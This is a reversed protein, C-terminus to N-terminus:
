YDYSDEDEEGPEPGSEEQDEPEDPVPTVPETSPKDVQQVAICGGFPGNPAENQCRVICVTNIGGYSGSCKLNSPLKVVMPHVKKYGPGLFGGDGPVNTTITLNTSEWTTAMATYDIKCVFPGAGDANVQLFKINLVGGARVQPIRNQKAFQSIIVKHNLSSIGDKGCCKMKKGKADKLYWNPVGAARIATRGCGDPNPTRCPKCNPNYGSKKCKCGPKFTSACNAGKCICEACRTSPETRPCLKCTKDPITPTSFVPVDRLFKVAKWNKTRAGIGIGHVNPNGDGWADLIMGHAAIGPILALFAGVVASTTQLHM